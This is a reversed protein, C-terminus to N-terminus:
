DFLHHGCTWQGAGSRKYLVKARYLQESAAAASPLGSGGVGRWTGPSFQYLGYYGAPNVAQPNGGSECRALAAWNLGDAGSVSGGSGGSRATGASGAPQGSGGPGAQPDPKTGVDVLTSVPRNTIVSSVLTRGTQRGNALMVQYVVVRRGASGAQVVESRGSALRASPRRLVPAPVPETVTLRRRDIRTLAVVLGAVVPTAPPESLRDLPRPRLGVEGILDSVTAATTVLGRTRGDGVVTVRKPTSVMVDLGSRGLSQSRSASLRAGDARVGLAMLASAVTLETTWYARPVGDVTLMLPRAFRVVVQQGDQLPSSLTPAVLDRPSVAIGQDALLGAVDDAGAPVITPIGDLVLTISKGSHAYVVTGGVVATLVAAQAAVRGARAVQGALFDIM